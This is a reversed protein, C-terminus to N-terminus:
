ISAAVLGSSEVVVEGTCTVEGEIRGAIDLDGSGTVRGRVFTGSGIVTASQSAM